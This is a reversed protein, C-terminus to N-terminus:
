LRFNAAVKCSFMIVFTEQSLSFVGVVQFWVCVLALLAHIFRRGPDIHLAVETNNVQFLSIVLASFTALAVTVLLSKQEM